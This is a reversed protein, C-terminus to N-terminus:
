IHIDSFISDIELLFNVFVPMAFVSIEMGKVGSIVLTEYLLPRYQDWLLAQLSGKVCM